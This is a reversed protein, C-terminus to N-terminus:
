LVGAGFRVTDSNGSTINGQQDKITDHGDGLGFLYTDSDNGGSIFDDGLGGSLTDDFSFGYITDNGATGAGADLDRILDDWELSSGDAFLFEEIRNFWQKGFLTYAAGFQDLVTMTEGTDKITIMLNTTNGIHSFEVDNQTLGPGFKLVDSGDILINAMEDRIVDHGYGRGFFYVDGSDGGTLSDNGAGGDMFDVMKTGDIVEDLALPHSSNRAMDVTDWVVGDAFVIENVGTDDSFDGGFLGPAIGEFEKVLRVEDGTANVTIILDIGERRATVEGSGITAFRLVDPDHGNGVPEIDDIVDHGFNSGLVYSDSGLGGTITQDGGSVYIMDDGDTGVIDGTGSLIQATPIGFAGAIEVAGAAPHVSEFAAVINSFVYSPTVALNSAGRDFDGLVVDLLPKWSQLWSLTGAADAPAASFVTEFAPILQRGTTAVFHDRAADYAVGPFYGALPGQVALRMTVMDLMSKFSDLLAGLKAAVGAPNLPVADLPLEEGFYRELFGIQAGDFASWNAGGVDVQDI